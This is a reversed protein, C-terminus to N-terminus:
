ETGESRARTEAKSWLHDILGRHECAAFCGPGGAMKGTAAHDGALVTIVVPYRCWPCHLNGIHELTSSKTEDYVVGVVADGLQILEAAKAVFEEVIVPGFM